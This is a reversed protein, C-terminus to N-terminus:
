PPGCSPSQPMYEYGRNRRTWAAAGSNSCIAAKWAAPTCNLTRRPCVRCGHGFWQAAFEDGAVVKRSEANAGEGAAGNGGTVILGCRWRYGHQTIACPLLLVTGIRRDDSRSEDDFTMGKVMAPMAGGPKKPSVSRLLGGSSHSGRCCSGSTFASFEKSFCDIEPQSRTIPLSFGPALRSPTPARPEGAKQTLPHGM